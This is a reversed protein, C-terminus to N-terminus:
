GEKYIFGMRKEKQRQQEIHRQGVEGWHTHAVRRIPPCHSQQKLHIVRHATKKKKIRLSGKEAESKLWTKM